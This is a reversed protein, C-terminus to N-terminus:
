WRGTLSLSLLRAAAFGPPSLFDRELDLGPRMAKRLTPSARWGLRLVPKLGSPVGSKRVARLTNLCAAARDSIMERMGDTTEGRALASRDLGPLPLLYLGEGAMARAHRLAFSLAMARAMASVAIHAASGSLAAALLLFGGFREDAWKDFDEDNFPAAAEREYGAFLPEFQEIVLSASRILEALPGAVEHERPPAGDAAETVVDRWWQLRLANIIPDASKRSAKALEVDFAILTMMRERLPEAIFLAALFLDPDAKQVLKAIPSLDPEAM